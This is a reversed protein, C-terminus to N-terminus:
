AGGRDRQKLYDDLSLAPKPHGPASRKPPAPVSVARVEVREINVEITLEPQARPPVLPPSWEGRQPPVHVAMEAPGQVRRNERSRTGSDEPTKLLPELEKKHTLEETASQTKSPRFSVEDPLRVHKSLAQLKTSSADASATLDPRPADPHITHESRPKAGANARALTPTESSPGFKGMSNSLNEPQRAAPGVASSSPSEVAMKPPGQEREPARGIHKFVEQAAISVEPNTSREFVSMPRPRVASGIRNRSALRTLFGSM